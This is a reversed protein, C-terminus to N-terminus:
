SVLAEARRHWIAHVTHAPDLESTDLWLGLERPTTAVDADDVGPTFAGRDAVKGTARRAARWRTLARAGSRASREQAILDRRDRLPRM